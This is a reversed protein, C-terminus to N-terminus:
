DLTVRTLARKERVTVRGLTRVRSLGRSALTARGLFQKSATVEDSTPVNGLCHGALLKRTLPSFTVVNGKLRCTASGLKGGRVAESFVSCHGRGVMFPYGLCALVRATGGLAPNSCGSLNM